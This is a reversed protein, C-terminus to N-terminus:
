WTGYRLPGNIKQVLMKYTFNRKFFIKAVHQTILLIYKIAQTVLKKLLECTEYFCANIKYFVIINQISVHRTKNNYMSRRKQLMIQTTIVTVTVNGHRQIQHFERATTGPIHNFKTKIHQYKAFVDPLSTKIQIWIVASVLTWVSINNKNCVLYNYEVSKLIISSVCM